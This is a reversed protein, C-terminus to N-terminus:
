EAREIGAEEGTDEEPQTDSTEGKPPKGLKAAEEESLENSM